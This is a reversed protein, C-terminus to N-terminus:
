EEEVIEADVIDDVTAQLAKFAGPTLLAEIVDPESDDRQLGVQLNMRDSFVEPRRAKLMIEAAKDSFKWRFGAIDGTKIDVIPEKWGKARESMAAVIDDTDDEVAEDWAAAFEPDEKRWLYVLGRSIPPDVARRARGVTGHCPELADIFAQKRAELESTREPTHQWCYPGPRTCPEGARTFGQCPKEQSGDLLAREVTM